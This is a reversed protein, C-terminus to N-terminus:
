AEDGMRNMARRIVRAAEPPMQQTQHALKVHVTPLRGRSSVFSLRLAEEYLACRSRLEALEADLSPRAM